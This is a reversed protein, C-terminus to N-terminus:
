LGVRDVLEVLVRRTSRPHFFLTRLGGLGPEPGRALPECGIAEYHPLVREINDVELAIHHLGEGRKALFGALASDPSVPSVIELWVGDPGCPIAALRLGQQPLTAEKIVEQGLLQRYFAVAGAFDAVAVGIHHLRKVM